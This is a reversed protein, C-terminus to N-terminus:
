PQKQLCTILLLQKLKTELYLLSSTHMMYHPLAWKHRLRPWVCCTINQWDNHLTLFNELEVKPFQSMLDCLMVDVPKSDPTEDQVRVVVVVRKIMEQTLVPGDYSAALEYSTSTSTAQSQKDLSSKFSFGNYGDFSAQSAAGYITSFATCTTVWLRLRIMQFNAQGTSASDSM